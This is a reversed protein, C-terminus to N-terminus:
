RSWVLETSVGLEEKKWTVKAGSKLAFYEYFFLWIGTWGADHIVQNIDPEAAPATLIGKATIKLGKSTSSKDCILTLKDGLDQATFSAALYDFLFAIALEFAELNGKVKYNNLQPDYEFAFSLDEALNVSKELLRQLTSSLEFAIQDQDTKASKKSYIILSELVEKNKELKNRALKQASFDGVETEQANIENVGEILSLQAWLKELLALFFHSGLENKATSDPANAKSAKETSAAQSKQNGGSKEESTQVFLRTVLQFFIKKNGKLKESPAFLMLSDKPREGQKLKELISQDLKILDLKPMPRVEIVGKKIVWEETKFTLHFDKVKFIEKLTKILVLARQKQNQEPLSLLSESYKLFRKSHDWKKGSM